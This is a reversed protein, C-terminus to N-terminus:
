RINSVDGGVPQSVISGGSLPIMKLNGTFNHINVSDDKEILHDNEALLNKVVDNPLKVPQGNFDCQYPHRGNLDLPPPVEIIQLGPAIKTNAFPDNPINTEVPKKITSAVPSKLSVPSKIGTITNSLGSILIGIVIGLILYITTKRM